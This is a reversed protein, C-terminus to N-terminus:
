WKHICKDVHICKKLVLITEAIIDKIIEYAGNIWNMQPLFTIQMKLEQKRNKMAKM